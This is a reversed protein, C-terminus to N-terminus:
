GSLNRRAFGAALHSIRATPRVLSRHGNQCHGIRTGGPRGGPAHSRRGQAKEQTPSLAFTDPSLAIQSFGSEQRRLQELAAFFFTRDMRIPGSLSGGYQTRTYPPDKIASFATRRMWGATASSVSPRVTFRNGGTKTIVNIVGGSTRGFEAQHGAILVQFEQVAEMPVTNRVGGTTEDNVDSGDLQLSNGRPRQGMVNFGSTNAM